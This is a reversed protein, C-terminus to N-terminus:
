VNLNEDYTSPIPISFCSITRLISAHMPAPTTTTTTTTATAPLIKEMEEEKIDTYVEKDDFIVTYIKKRINTIKTVKGEYFDDVGNVTFLVKVKEGVEFKLNNNNNNNNPTSKPTAKAPIALKKKLNEIYIADFDLRVRKQEKDATVLFKKSNVHSPMYPSILSILHPNIRTKNFFEIAKDTSAKEIKKIENQCDFISVNIISLAKEFDKKKYELEFAAKQKTLAKKREEDIYKKTQEKPLSKLYAANEKDYALKAKAQKALWPKKEKQDLLKWDRGLQRTITTPGMTPNNAKVIPRKEACYLVYGSPPRKPQKPDKKYRYQIMINQMETINKRNLKREEERVEELGKLLQMIERNKLTKQYSIYCFDREEWLKVIGSNWQKSVCMSRGLCKQDLFQLLIIAVEPFDFINLLYSIIEPEIEKAQIENEIAKKRGRKSM